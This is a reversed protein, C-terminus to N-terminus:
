DDKSYELEFLMSPDFDDIKKNFKTPDRPVEYETIKNPKKARSHCRKLGKFTSTFKKWIKNEEFMRNKDGRLRQYAKQKTDTGEDWNERSIDIITGIGKTGPKSPKLSFLPPDPLPGNMDEEKDVDVYEDDSSDVDDDEDDDVLNEDNASEDEKDHEFIVSDTPRSHPEEGENHITTSSDGNM